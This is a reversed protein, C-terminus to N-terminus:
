SCMFLPILDMHQTLESYFKMALIELSFVKGPKKALFLLSITFITNERESRASERSLSFNEPSIKGGRFKKLDPSKRSLSLSLFKLSHFTCGSPFKNISKKREKKRSDGTKRTDTGEVLEM